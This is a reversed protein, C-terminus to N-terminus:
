VLQPGKTTNGRSREQVREKKLVRKKVIIVQTKKVKKTEVRPIRKARSKDFIRIKQRPEREKKKQANKSLNGKEEYPTQQSKKRGGGGRGATHL